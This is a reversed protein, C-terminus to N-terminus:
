VRTTGGAVLNSGKLQSDEYVAGNGAQAKNNLGLREAAAHPTDGLRIYAGPERLRYRYVNAALEEIDMRTWIGASHQEFLPNTCLHVVDLGRELAEVVAATAGIMLTQATVRPETSARDPYRAIIAALRECLALHKPSDTMVPHNRVEWRPMSGPVAARLMAEVRQAIFDADEFSYPLLIRGAFPAAADRLYRLSAIVEVREQPWGLHRTLIEAQGAGHVLLRDPAGVRYLYDTPLAPLASHLYGVTATRSDRAKVRLNIAHQFPQAEYPMVVQSLRGEQVCDVVAAAADCAQAVTTSFRGRATRRSPKRAGDSPRHFVRVNSALRSPASGSLLMLFWLAHPTGRSTLGLYRDEYGGDADFDTPLAWSVILHEFGAGAASAGSIAFPRLRLVSASDRARAILRAPEARWGYALQRLRANGLGPAWSNLYCEPDLAVDVGRSERGDVFQRSRELLRLQQVGVDRSVANM